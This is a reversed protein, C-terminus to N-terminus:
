VFFVELFCFVISFWFRFIPVSFFQSSIILWSVGIIISKQAGHHGGHLNEDGINSFSLWFGFYWPFSNNTLTLTSSFGVIACCYPTILMGVNMISLFLSIIVCNM